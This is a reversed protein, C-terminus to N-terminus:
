PILIFPQEYCQEFVGNEKMQRSFYQGSAPSKFVARLVPLAIRPFREFGAIKKLVKEDLCGRQALSAGLAGLSAFLRRNTEPPMSRIGEGGGKVITGLYPSGLRAALKELYREVYRSHCAEPFGSQVLFGLPPNNGQELLPQLAEFFHKVIGPMGDTYLPFGIWVCDAERFAQVHQATNRIQQLHYTRTAGAFGKGLEELMLLSNSGSAGRPSGNFITLRAPPQITDFGTAKLRKPYLHKGAQPQEIKEVLEEVPCPLTAVFELRSKFNLATRAFIGSVIQLDKEDTSAEKELLMGIRPYRPYRKLHHIEGQDIEMYPHILPLHKDLATKFLASPFGMSLPSAWLVFDSNIITRDLVDTDDKLVCRGPTKVWCNFCGTCPNLKMDRLLVHTVTHGGKEFLPILKNLYVDLAGQKPSGNLITIDM